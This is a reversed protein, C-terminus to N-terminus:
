WNGGNQKFNDPNEMAKKTELLGWNTIVRLAKIAPIKENNTWQKQLDAHVQPTLSYFLGNITTIRVRTSDEMEGILINAALRRIESVDELDIISKVFSVLANNM